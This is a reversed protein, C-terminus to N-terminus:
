HRVKTRLDRVPPTTIQTIDNQAINITGNKVNSETNNLNTATAKGFGILRTSYGDDYWENIAIIEISDGECLEAQVRAFLTADPVPIQRLIPRVVEKVGVTRYVVRISPADGPLVSDVTVTAKSESTKYPTNMNSGKKGNV